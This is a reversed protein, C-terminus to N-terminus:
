ARSIAFGADRFVGLAAANESLVEAVFSGIGHAAARQALQELLRTGIGRGQEEDAVAFAVEASTPERLRAYSALAVIRQGGADDALTGVLSGLEDWDPDLFPRALDPGVHRAGHFRLYLSQASLTAFFQTVAETDQSSPPRLRLTGGDRLIVDVAGL